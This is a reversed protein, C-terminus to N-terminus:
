FFDSLVVICFLLVCMDARAYSVVVVTILRTTPPTKKYYIPAGLHIDTIASLAFSHYYLPQVKSLVTDIALLAM